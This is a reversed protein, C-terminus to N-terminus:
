GLRRRLLRHEVVDAETIAPGAPVGPRTALDFNDGLNGLLHQIAARDIPGAHAAGAFDARGDGLDNGAKFLEGLDVARLLFELYGAACEVLWPKGGGIASGNEMAM